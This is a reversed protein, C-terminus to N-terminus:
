AGVSRDVPCPLHAPLAYLDHSFRMELQALDRQGLRLEEQRAPTRYRHVGEVLLALVHVLVEDEGVEPHHGLERIQGLIVHTPDGGFM